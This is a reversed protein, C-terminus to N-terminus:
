YLLYLSKKDLDLLTNKGMGLHSEKEHQLLCLNRIRGYNILEKDIKSMFEVFVRHQHSIESINLPEQDVVELPM